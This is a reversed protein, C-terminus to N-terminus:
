KTITGAASFTSFVDDITLGALPLADPARLRTVKANVVKTAAGSLHEPTGLMKQSKADAENAPEELQRKTNVSPLAPLPPLPLAALADAPQAPSVEANNGADGNSPTM